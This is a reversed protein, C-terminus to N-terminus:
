KTVPARADRMPYSYYWEALEKFGSATQAPFEYLSTMRSVIVHQSNVYAEFARTRKGMFSVILVPAVM